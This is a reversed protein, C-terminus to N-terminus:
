IEHWKAQLRYLIKIFPKDDWVITMDNNWWTVLYVTQWDGVYHPHQYNMHRAYLQM